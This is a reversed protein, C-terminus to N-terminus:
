IKTFQHYVQTKQMISTNVYDNANSLFSTPAFSCSCFWECQVCHIAAIQVNIM